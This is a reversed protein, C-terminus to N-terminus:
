NKLENLKEGIIVLIVKIIVILNIITVAKAYYFVDSHEENLITYNRLKCYNGNVQILKYAATTLANQALAVYANNQNRMGYDGLQVIKYLCIQNFIKYLSLKFKDPEIKENKGNIQMENPHDKVTNMNYFNIGYVGVNVSAYKQETNVYIYNYLHVPFVSLAFLAAAISILALSM